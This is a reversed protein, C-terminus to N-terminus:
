SIDAPAPSDPDSAFPDGVGEPLEGGVELTLEYPTFDEETQRSRLDFYILAMLVFLIPWAVLGLVTAPGLAALMGMGGGLAATLRELLGFQAVMQLVTPPGLLILGGLGITTAAQRFRGSVLRFSRFVASIGGMDEVAVVSPMSALYAAVAVLVPLVVLGPVIQVAPSPTAGPQMGGTAGAAIIALISAPISAVIYGGTLTLGAVLGAGTLRWLKGLAFDWAQAASYPRGLAREALMRGVAAAGAFTTLLSVAGVALGGGVLVLMSSLFERTDLQTPDVQGSQMSMVTQLAGSQGMLYTFALSLAAAPLMVVAAAIFAAGGQAFCEGFAAKVLAAPSQPEFRAADHTSM